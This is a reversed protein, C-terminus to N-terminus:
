RVFRWLGWAGVAALVAMAEFGVAWAIGHACGLSDIEITAPRPFARLSTVESAREKERPDTSLGLTAPFETIVQVAM